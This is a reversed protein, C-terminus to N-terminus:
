AGLSFAGCPDKAPNFTDPFLRTDTSHTVYSRLLGSELTATKSFRGVTSSRRSACYAGTAFQNPPAGRSYGLTAGSRKQATGERARENANAGMLGLRAGM